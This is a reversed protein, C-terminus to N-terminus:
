SELRLGIRGSATDQWAMTGKLWVPEQSVMDCGPFPDKPFCLLEFRSSAPVAGLTESVIKMGNVSVDLIEGVHWSRERGLLDHCKLSVPLNTEQRPWKRKEPIEM